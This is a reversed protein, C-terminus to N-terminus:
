AGERPQENKNLGELERAREIIAQVTRLTEPSLGSARLAVSRVQSDRMSELLSLETDVRRGEEEDFFYSPPVGFFDALAKLYKIGPNDRQGKRLQHLFSASMTPGGRDAIGQAVERLSYPGRGAPHIVQFLRDVKEALIRGEESVEDGM